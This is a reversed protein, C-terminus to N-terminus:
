PSPEPRVKTQLAPNSSFILSPPNPKRLCAAQPFRLSGPNSGTCERARYCGFYPLQFEFVPAAIETFPREALKKKRRDKTNETARSPKSRRLPQPAGPSGSGGEGGIGAGILSKLACWCPLPTCSTKVM